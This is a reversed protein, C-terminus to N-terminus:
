RRGTADRILSRIGSTNQFGTLQFRKWGVEGKSFLIVQPIKKGRMLRSALQPDHDRNVITYSVASLEGSSKMVDITSEKLAVCAPCADSSVIVMLPKQEREAEAYAASYSTLTESDSPFPLLFSLLVLSSVM